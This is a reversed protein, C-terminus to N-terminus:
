LGAIIPTLCDALRHAWRQVGGPYDIQDHRVELLVHPLNRAEAHVPLTYGHADRGSYPQNDGVQIDGPRALAAMLPEAIRGDRNWLIGIEWPRHFGAMVPTCSHVSIIAPPAGEAMMGDIERAIAAHYPRHFLDVRQQRQAASLRLNAPVETGDSRPPICTPDDPRRNCDIVLRSYGTLLLPAALLDGLARALAEAGIDYGIHRDLDAQAVGLDGLGRPVRNRAHDCVLLARRGTLASRAPNPAVREFVPPDGPGLLDIASPPPRNLDSSPLDSMIVVPM